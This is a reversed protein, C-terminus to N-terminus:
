REGKKPARRDEHRMLFTIGEEFEPEDATAPETTDAATDLKGWAAPPPPPPPAPAPPPPPAAVTEPESEQPVPRVEAASPVHVPAPPPTEPEAHVEPAMPEDVATWEPDAPASVEPASMGPAQANSGTRCAAWALTLSGALVGAMPSFDGWWGCPAPDDGSDLVASLWARDDVTMQLFERGALSELPALEGYTTIEVNDSIMAVPSLVRVTRGAQEGLAELEAGIERLCEKSGFVLAQGTCGELLDRAKAFVQDAGTLGLAVGAPRPAQMQELLAVAERGRSRVRSLVQEAFEAPDTPVFLRPKDQVVTMARARVLTGLTKAVNAPDRGMVQALKYSSVPETACTQLATFYVEAETGTLGLDRLLHVAKDREPAAEPTEAM